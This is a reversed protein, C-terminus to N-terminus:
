VATAVPHARAFGVARRGFPASEELEELDEVHELDVGPRDTGRRLLVSSGTDSWRRLRITAPAMYRRVSRDPVARVSQARVRRRITGPLHLLNWGWAALVQWVDDFRRSAAWMALKAVGQVVCLPLVWLLSLFG